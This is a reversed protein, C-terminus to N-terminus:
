LSEQSPYGEQDHFSQDFRLDSYFPCPFLEVLKFQQDLPPNIACELGRDSLKLAVAELSQTVQKELNRWFPSAEYALISKVGTGRQIVDDIIEGKMVSSLFLLSSLKRDALAFLIEGFPRVPGTAPAQLMQCGFLDCQNLPKLRIIAERQKLNEVFEGVFILMPMESLDLRITQNRGDRCRLCIGDGASSLHVHLEIRGELYGQLPSTIGSFRDALNLGMQGRNKILEIRKETGSDLVPRDRQPNPTEM